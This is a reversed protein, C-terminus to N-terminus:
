RCYCPKGAITNAMVPCSHALPPWEGAGGLGWRGIAKWNMSEFIKAQDSFPM